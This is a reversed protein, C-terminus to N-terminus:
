HMRRNSKQKLKNRFEELTRSVWDVSGGQAAIRASFDIIKREAADDWRGNYQVEDSIRNFQAQMVAKLTGVDMQPVSTELSKQPRQQPSITGSAILKRAEAIRDAPIMWVNSGKDFEGGMARLQDRIPYTKGKLPLMERQM